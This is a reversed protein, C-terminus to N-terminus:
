GVIEQRASFASNVLVYVEDECTAGKFPFTFKVSDGQFMVEGDPRAFYMQALMTIGISVALFAIFAALDMRIIPVQPADIRGTLWYALIVYFLVAAAMMIAGQLLVWKSRRGANVSVAKVEELPVVVTERIGDKQGFTIVRLNTLVLMRGQALPGSVLGNEPSFTCSISEGQLLSVHRVFVSSLVSNDSAIESLGIDYVPSTVHHTSIPGVCRWDQHLTKYLSKQLTETINVSLGVPTRRRTAAKTEKSRRGIPLFQHPSSYM